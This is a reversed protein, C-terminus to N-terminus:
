KKESMGQGTYKLVRIGDVNDTVYLLGGPGFNADYTVSTEAGDFNRYFFHGAEVPYYPNSIDIARLGFAYWAMFYLNSNKATGLHASPTTSPGWDRGCDLNADYWFHSIVKPDKENKIDVLRVHGYPCNFYEDSVLLLNRGPVIKAAHTNGCSIYPAKAPSQAACMADDPSPDEPRQYRPVHYDLQSIFKPNRKDTIDLIIVGAQHYSLYARNGQVFTYHLGVKKNLPSTPSEQWIPDNFSSQPIWTRLALEDNRQGEVWWKGVEVPNKPDKLDVIIFIRDTFGPHVGDKDEYTGYEGGMYVYRGDFFFHHVGGAQTYTGNPLRPGKPLDFRSLFVPNAPDRVDWITLGAYSARKRTNATRYSEQNAVLIRGQEQLYHSHTNWGPDWCTPGTTWGPGGEKWDGCPVQIPLNNNADNYWAQWGPGNVPTLPPAPSEVPDFVPVEALLVLNEPDKVDVVRFCRDPLYCGTFLIHGDLHGRADLKSFTKGLLNTSILEMNVLPDEDGVAAAAAGPVGLLLGVSLACALLPLALLRPKKM